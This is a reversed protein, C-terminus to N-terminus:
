INIKRYTPVMLLHNVLYETNHCTGMVYGFEKDWSICNKFHTAGEVQHHDFWEKVGKVNECKLVLMFANEGLIPEVPVNDAKLAQIILEANCKQSQIMEPVSKEAHYLLNYVGRSMKCMPIDEKVEIHSAHKSKLRITFRKYILDTYLISKCCMSAFLAINKKFSYDQLNLYYKKVSELYKPNNVKLIGGQGLSPFKGQNISYVTFDGDDPLGFGHANDVLIVADPCVSRVKDINNRIGFLNTLVIADVSVASLSDIDVTLDSTIDVFIPYCGAQEIANAVTNCNYALVAVRAGPRVSAKLAIVIGTRAYNLYFSTGNGVYNERGFLFTRQNSFNFGINLRPIYM